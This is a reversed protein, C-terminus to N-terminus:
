RTLVIYDKILTKLFTLHNKEIKDIGLKESLRETLELVAQKHADNRHLVYRDITQKILLIDSERFNSIGYYQPTYDKLSEIRMLDDLSISDNNSVKIVTCNSVIDGLRQAYDSSTSLIVAISGLSLWVDVIRFSWRLVHDYFVPQRGDMKVIKIKLIKKGPTQGNMIVEFFLTYFTNIPLIITYLFYDFAKNSFGVADMFVSTFLWILIIVVTIKILSDLLFAFVRDRAPALEYNIVVNQTTKLDISKM